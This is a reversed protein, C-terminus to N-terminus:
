WKMCSSPVYDNTQVPVIHNMKETAIGSISPVEMLVQVHHLWAPPSNEKSQSLPLTVVILIVHFQEHTYLYLIM